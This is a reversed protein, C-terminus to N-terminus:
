RMTWISRKTNYIACKVKEIKTDWMDYILRLTPTDINKLALNLTRVICPTWFIQPYQVEITQGLERLRVIQLMTTLIQVVNRPGVEIVREKMLSAIFYKDKTEGSCDVTKFFM